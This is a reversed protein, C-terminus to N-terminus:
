YPEQLYFRILQFIPHLITDFNCRGECLKSAQMSIVQEIRFAYDEGEIAAQVRQAERAFPRSQERNDLTRMGRMQENLKQQKARVHHSPIESDPLALVATTLSKKTLLDNPSYCFSRKVNLYAQFYSCSLADVGENQVNLNNRIVTLVNQKLFDLPKSSTFNGYVLSFAM